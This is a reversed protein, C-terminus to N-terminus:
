HVPRLPSTKSLYFALTEITVSHCWFLGFDGILHVLSLINRVRIRSEKFHQLKNLDGSHQEVYNKANRNLLLFFYLMQM